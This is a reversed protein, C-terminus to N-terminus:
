ALYRWILVIVIATLAAWAALELPDPFWDDASM